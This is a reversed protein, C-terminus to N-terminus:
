KLVIMKKTASYQGSTLTYFYIGSSLYKANLTVEYVGATQEENVLTMVEEGLANYLKMSIMGPSTISYRINTTPNFPNPYNQELSFQQPLMGEVPKVDTTFDGFVNNLEIDPGEKLIFSHNVGFGGENDLPSANQHVCM